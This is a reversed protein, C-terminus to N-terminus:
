VYDEHFSAPDYQRKFAEYCDDCMELTLIHKTVANNQSGEYAEVVHDYSVSEGATGCLNTQGELVKGRFLPERIHVM